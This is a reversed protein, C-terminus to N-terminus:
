WHMHWHSENSLLKHANIFWVPRYQLKSSTSLILPKCFRFGVRVHIGWSDQQSASGGNGLRELWSIESTAFLLRSLLTIHKSPLMAVSDSHLNSSGQCGMQQLAAPATKLLAEKEPETESPLTEKSTKTYNFKSHSSATHRLTWIHVRLTWIIISFNHNFKEIYMHLHQIQRGYVFSMSFRQYM